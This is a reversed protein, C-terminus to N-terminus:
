YTMMSFYFDAYRDKRYLLRLFRGTDPLRYLLEASKFNENQSIVRSAVLEAKMEKFEEGTSKHTTLTPPNTDVNESISRYRSGDIGNVFHHEKYVDGEYELIYTVEKEWKLEEMNRM